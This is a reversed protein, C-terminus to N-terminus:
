RYVTEARHACRQGARGRAQLVYGSSSTNRLVKRGRVSSVPRSCRRAPSSAPGVVTWRCTETGCAVKTEVGSDVCRM